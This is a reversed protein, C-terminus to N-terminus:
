YIPVAFRPPVFRDRAEEIWAFSGPLKDVSEIIPM